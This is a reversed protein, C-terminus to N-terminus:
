GVWGDGGGLGDLGGLVNIGVRKVWGVEGLGSKGVWGDCKM